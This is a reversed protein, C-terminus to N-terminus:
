NGEEIAEEETGEGEPSDPTEGEGEPEVPAANKPVFNEGIIKFSTRRNVQHAAEREEESALKAIEEDSILLNYEGYGKPVMRDPDIGRGVLYKVASDARRQSLKENYEDSGRSDTNAQLEIILNPNNVLIDHLYELSDAAQETIYAENFPYVIEPLKIEKDTIPILEYLHAFIKSEQQGVTSEKGRARLYNPKSVELSYSTEENIYRGDGNEAFEFTGDSETTAEAISGDTGILKVTAAALPEGSEIDQVLGKLVFIIAPETFSWIDDKGRGGERNSSFFGREHNGEFTIGFDNANSNIPARMNKVDGWQGQGREKAVFIDLGGMGVHGDSAFYLNGNQRIYPFMENGSTNIETGLNIPESWKGRSEEKIYWLDKGGQGGKMDSAFVIIKDDGTLAPHGIVVSDNGLVIEEPTGYKTGQRKAKFLKCGLYGNKEYACRTFFITNKRANMVSAGENNETNIGEGQVLVPESWKGKKDRITVYLDSFNGGTIENENTGVSGERSSTFTLESGKKNSFTPAYDYWESNILVNPEVLYNIPNDTWEQAKEASELGVKGRPDSPDAAIYRQFAVVAEDYKGNMMKTEALRLKAVADPYQAIISKDYWVEAQEAQDSLRYAEAIRFIIEAKVDRDQEKVYAKKYFEIAEFYKEEQMLKIDADEKYSKQAVAQFGIFYAFLLLGVAKFIKM